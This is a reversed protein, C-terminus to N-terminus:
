RELVSLSLLLERFVSAAVISSVGSSDLEPALEVVDFGIIQHNSLHRILQIFERYTIGMPEPNGTGPILSPDFVDLDCTVYLPVDAPISNMVGTIDRLCSDIPLEVGALELEEKMGARIGLRFIRDAPLFDMIRKIVTAHSIKEGLYDDRMDTHADLQLVRMNPYKKFLAKVVGLTVTHEGGMVAPKTDTAIITSVEEEVMEVMRLANGPPVELDGWDTIDLDNLDRSLFPSYTELSYSGQRIAQPGFRSGARFSSTGDFPVGLLAVQSPSRNCAAGLYGLAM